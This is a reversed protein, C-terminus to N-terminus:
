GLAVGQTQLHHFTRIRFSRRMPTTLTCTRWEPIHPTGESRPSRDPMTGLANGQAPIHHGTPVRPIQPTAYGPRQGPSGPYARRALGPSVAQLGNPNRPGFELGLANGQAPIRRGTPVHPIPREHRWRRRPLSDLTAVKASIHQGKSANRPELPATCVLGPHLGPYGPISHIRESPVSCRSPSATM